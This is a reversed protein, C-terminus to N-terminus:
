RHMDTGDTSDTNLIRYKLVCIARIVRIKVSKNTIQAFGHWGDLDTNLTRYKLVCIVSIEGLALTQFIVPFLVTGSLYHQFNYLPVSFRLFTCRGRADRPM